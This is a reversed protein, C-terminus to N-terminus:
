WESQLTIKKDVEATLLDSLDNCQPAWVEKQGDFYQFLHVDKLYHRWCKINCGSFCKPNEERGMLTEYIVQLLNFPFEVNFMITM